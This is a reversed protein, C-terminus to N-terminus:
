IFVLSDVEGTCNAPLCCTEPKDNRTTTAPTCGVIHTDARDTHVPPVMTSLQHANHSICCKHFLLFHYYTFFMFRCTLYYYSSVSYSIRCVRLHYLTSQKQVMFCSMVPHLTTLADSPFLEIYMLGDILSIDLCTILIFRSLINAGSYADRDSVM